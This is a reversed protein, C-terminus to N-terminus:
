QVLHAPLTCASADKKLQQKLTELSLDSCRLHTGHKSDKMALIGNM